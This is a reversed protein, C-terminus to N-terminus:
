LMFIYITERNCLAVMFFYHRATIRKIRKADHRWAAATSSLSTRIWFHQMRMMGCIRVVSGRVAPKRFQIRLRATFVLRSTQTHTHTHTQGASRGKLTSRNQHFKTVLVRSHDLKAAAMITWIRGCLSRAVEWFDCIRIEFNQDMTKRTQTEQTNDFFEVRNSCFQRLLYM